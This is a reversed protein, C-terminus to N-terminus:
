WGPDESARITANIEAVGGPVCYQRLDVIKRPLLLEPPKKKAKGVKGAREVTVSCIDVSFRSDGSPPGMDIFEALDM